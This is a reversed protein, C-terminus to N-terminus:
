YFYLKIMAYDSNDYYSEFSIEKLRMRDNLIIFNRKGDPSYMTYKIDYLKDGHITDIYELVSKMAYVYLELKNSLKDYKVKNTTLRLQELKSSNEVDTITVEFHNTRYCEFYTNELTSMSNIRQEINSLNFIYFICVIQNFNLSKSQVKFLSFLFGM